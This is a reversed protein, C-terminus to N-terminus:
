QRVSQVGGIATVGTNPGGINVIGPIVPLGVM